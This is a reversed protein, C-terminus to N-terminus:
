HGYLVKKMDPPQYNPGKLFKGDERMPGGVKSMNSRHVEAFVEDMPIGYEAGTGYTVVLLDALEKAIHELDAEDIADLTENFEEWLLDKRLDERDIPPLEPTEPDIHGLARHFKKVKEFNTM